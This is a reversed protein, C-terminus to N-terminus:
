MAACGTSNWVRVSHPAESRPRSGTSLVMMTAMGSNSPEMAGITNPPRGPLAPTVQVPQWWAQVKVSWSRVWSMADHGSRALMSAARTLLITAKRRLSRAWRLSASTTNLKGGLAPLM